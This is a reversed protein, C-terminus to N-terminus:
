ALSCWEKFILQLATLRLVPYSVWSNEIFYLQVPKILEPFYVPCLFVLSILSLFGLLVPTM